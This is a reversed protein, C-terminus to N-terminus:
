CLFNAKFHQICACLLMKCTCSYSQHFHRARAERGSASWTRVQQCRINYNPDSCKRRRSFVLLVLPFIISSWFTPLFVHIRKARVRPTRMIKIWKASKRDKYQNNLSLESLTKMQERRGGWWGRDWLLLLSRCIMTKPSLNNIEYDNYHCFGNRPLWFHSVLPNDQHTFYLRVSVVPNQLVSLDTNGEVVHLTHSCNFSKNTHHVENIVRPSISGTPLSAWSLFQPQSGNTHVTNSSPRVPPNQTETFFTFTNSVVYKSSPM